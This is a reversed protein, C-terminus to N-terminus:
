PRGEIIYTCNRQAADAIAKREERESSRAEWRVFNIAFAASLLDESETWRWEGDEDPIQWREVMEPESEFSIAARLLAGVRAPAAGLLPCNKIGQHLLDGLEKSARWTCPGAMVEEIKESQEEIFKAVYEALEAKGKMEVGHFNGGTSFFRCNATTRVYEDLLDSPLLMVDFTKLSYKLTERLAGMGGDLDTKRIWVHGLNKGCTKWEEKLEKVPLFKGTLFLHAHTNWHESTGPDKKKLEGMKERWGSPRSKEFFFARRLFARRRTEPTSYTTEIKFLHGEVKEVFFARRRLKRFGARVEDLQEKFTEGEESRRTLTLFRCKQSNITGDTIGIRDAVRVFSRRGHRRACTPCHRNGCKKLNMIPGREDIKITGKFALVPGTECALLAAARAGARENDKFVRAYSEALRRRIEKRLEWNKPSWPNKINTHKPPKKEKNTKETVFLSHLPAHLSTVGKDLLSLDHTMGAGKM